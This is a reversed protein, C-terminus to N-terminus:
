LGGCPSCVKHLCGAGLDVLGTWDWSLSEGLLNGITDLQVPIRPRLRADRPYWAEVKNRRYGLHTNAGRLLTFALGHSGRVLHLASCGVSLGTALQSRPRNVFQEGRTCPRM